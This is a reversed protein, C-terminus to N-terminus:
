PLIIKLINFLLYAFINEQLNLPDKDIYLKLIWIKFLKIWWILQIKNAM